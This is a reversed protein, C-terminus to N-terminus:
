EALTVTKITLRSIGVGSCNDDINVNNSLHIIRAIIQTCGGALSVNNSFNLTQNRFYIGGKLNFSVGNNNLNQVTTTTTSLDMLSIGPFPEGSTPGPAVLNLVADNGISIAYNGNIVITVGGAGNITASNGISLQTDIYYTGAALNITDSNGFNWGSCFRGPTLNIPPQNNGLSSTQTTCAPLPSPLALSSYPDSIAPAGQLNPSGNLAANNSLSWGGVVSVPGYITANNSLSLANAATSNSAVACNANLLSANNSLSLANQATSDLALICTDALTKVVAVAKTAITATALPAYAFLSSQDQQLTVAVGSPAPILRRPPEPIQGATRAQRRARRRWFM